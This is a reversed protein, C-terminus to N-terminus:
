RRLFDGFPVGVIASLKELGNLVGRSPDDRTTFTKTVASRGGSDVLVCDTFTGGVDVGVFYCLDRVAEAM